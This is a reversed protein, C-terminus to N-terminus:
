MRSERGCVYIYIYIYVYRSFRISLIKKDVIPKVRLPNEKNLQTNKNKSKHLTLSPNNFDKSLVPNPCGGVTELLPIEARLPAFQSDHNPVWIQGCISGYKMYGVLSPHVWLISTITWCWTSFFCYASTLVSGWISDRSSVSMSDSGTRCIWSKLLVISRYTFPKCSSMAMNPFFTVSLFFIWVRVSLFFTYIYIYICISYGLFNASSLFLPSHVRSTWVQAFIKVVSLPGDM